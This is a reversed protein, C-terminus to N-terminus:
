KELLEKGETKREIYIELENKWKKIMKEKQKKCKYCKLLKREKRKRSTFCFKCIFNM